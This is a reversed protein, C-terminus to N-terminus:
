INRNKNGKITHIYLILPIFINLDIALNLVLSREQTRQQQQQKSVLAKNIIIIVRYVSPKSAHQMYISGLPLQTPKEAVVYTNVYFCRSLKHTIIQFGECFHHHYSAPSENM